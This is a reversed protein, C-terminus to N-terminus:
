MKEKLWKVVDFKFQVFIGIVAGVLYPIYEEM